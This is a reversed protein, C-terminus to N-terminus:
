GVTGRRDSAAKRLTSCSEIAEAPATMVSFMRNQLKSANAACSLSAPMFRRLIM